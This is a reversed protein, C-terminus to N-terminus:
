KSVEYDIREQLIERYARMASVQKKLLELGKEDAGFPPNEIAKECKKIRSELESLEVKMKEIYKQMFTTYFKSRQNDFIRM